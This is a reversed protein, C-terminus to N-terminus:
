RPDFIAARYWDGYRTAVTRIDLRDKFRVFAELALSDGLDPSHVLKLLCARLGEIDGPEHLLGTEGGLIYDSIGAIRSGIVPIGAAIAEGLVNPTGDRDGDPADVSPIVVCAAARFEEAIQERTRQGLFVVRDGANVSKALQKLSENLPGDGVIRLQVNDLGAAAQIVDAVGKKAVLRGVFLIRGMEPSRESVLRQWLGFDIGSPQVELQTRANLFQETIDRSVGVFREAGGIAALKLHKLLGQNLRFADAGRSTIIYPTRTIPRTVYAVLASPVIWQAHVIDSRHRLHQALTQWAMCAVLTVAQIWLAPRRNLQPMIADDALREFRKPFYAFRRVTVGCHETVRESGKVRPAIITIDFEDSMAVANDLVFSPTGDGSERPVRTALILVRPRHPSSSVPALECSRAPRM